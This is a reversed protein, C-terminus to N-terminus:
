LAHFRVIFLQQWHETGGDTRTAIEEPTLDFAKVFHTKATWGPIGAFLAEPSLNHVKVALANTWFAIKPIKRDGLFQMILRQLTLESNFYRACSVAALIHAEAMRTALDVPIVPANFDHVHVEQFLGRQQGWALPPQFVDSAIVTINRKAVPLPATPDAWVTAVDEWSADYKYALTTNGFLAAFEVALLQAPDALQATFADLETNIYVRITDYFKGFGLRNTQALYSTPDATDYSVMWAANSANQEM